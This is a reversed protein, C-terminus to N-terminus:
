ADDPSTAPAGSPVDGAAAVMRDLRVPRLGRAAADDLVGELLETARSPDQGGDHLLVISGARLRAAIRRRAAATDRTGGDRGGCDWGVVALGLRAAAPATAHTRVGFPPRFWRPEAGTARGIARQCTELDARLTATRSLTLRARHTHSHNGILHGEAAIRRTLEPHADVREGILFFAASVGRARLLDLVAPTCAPDPGDDFTLAFHGAGDIRALCPGLLRSRPAISARAVLGVFVVAIGILSPGRWGAPLWATAVAAAACLATVAHLPLLGARRKM